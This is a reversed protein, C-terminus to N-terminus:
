GTSTRGRAQRPLGALLPWVQAIRADRPGPEREAAAPGAGPRPVGRGGRRGHGVMIVSGFIPDKKAGMILEFSNPDTVMKQVTVGSSRPTPGSSAKGVSTIRDFAARVKDDRACTRARRRRRRDQAHDRPSHIKLVVPYGIQTPWEGGGRRGLAGAPSADGSDRLGGPAGEFRRPFSATGKPWFRISCARAAARDLTFGVPDDAADRAAIELNRAYSVLHMFAGVAQEPTNYTPIGGANLRESARACRTARGDLRGAGAQNASRTARAPGGAGGRRHRASRDDGAADPDGARRRRGQRQARDRGGRRLAAAAADGLVDIPNGHSWCPPLSENLAALTEDGVRGARWRARDPRRHDDRGTRRRQHRDGARGAPPSAARAGAARRLRVHGRDRFIREIGAGSFRRRTSRTWARWPAPTRPPRRPRSPSVGRRTPWSRSPAPLRGRRRCSSARGRHDVRHVPHDLADRTASGFYDILDGMSVDLMNGVSVFYSFGIGEALAWDLMSTALAGSQSLLRDPWRRADSQRFERQAQAAARYPRPLEAGSAAHRRPSRAGRGCRRELALGESGVERFGASLVAVAVVGAEGCERVVEPVTAAPTCVIALETKAPTDAIRAYAQIGGVAERSRNIPYVVGEFGADVLNRLVIHGLQM